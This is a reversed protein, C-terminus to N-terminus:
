RVVLHYTNTGDLIKFTNFYKGRRGENVVVRCVYEDGAWTVRTMIRVDRCVMM